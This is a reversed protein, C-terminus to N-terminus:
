STLSKLVESYTIINWDDDISYHEERNSVIVRKKDVWALPAFLALSQGQYLRHYPTPLEIGKVQLANILPHWSTDLHFRLHAWNKCVNNFYNYRQELAEWRLTEPIILANQTQAQMCLICFNLNDNKSELCQHTTLLFPSSTQLKWTCNHCPVYEHEEDGDNELIAPKLKTLAQGPSWLHMSKEHFYYHTNAKIFDIFDFTHDADLEASLLCKSCWEYNTDPVEKHTSRVWFWEHKQKLEPCHSSFHLISSESLPKHIIVPVKRYNWGVDNKVLQSLPTYLGYVLEQDFGVAHMEATQNDLSHSHTNNIEAKDGFAMKEAYAKIAKFHQKLM